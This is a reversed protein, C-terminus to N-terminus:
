FILRVEKEMADKTTDLLQMARTFSQQVGNVSKSQVGMEPVRQWMNYVELALAEAILPYAAEFATTDLAMGGVYVVQLTRKGPFQLEYGNTIEIRGTSDDYGTYYLPDIASDAAWLRQWDNKITTISVIPSAEVLFLCQGPEVDFYRTYTARLATRNMYSEALRSVLSILRNLQNDVDGGLDADSRIFQKVRALSCLQLGSTAVV